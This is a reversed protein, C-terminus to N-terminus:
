YKPPFALSTVPKCRAGGVLARCFLVFAQVWEGCRGTRTQLLKEVHNYRPFRTTAGCNCRYVEVHGALFLREDPTPGTAGIASTPDGCKSCKPANTWSFFSNKFWHLLEKALHVRECSGDAAAAAAARETVGWDLLALAQSQLREDEYRRLINCNKL